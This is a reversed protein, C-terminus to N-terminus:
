NYIRYFLNADCQGTAAPTTVVSIAENEAAMPGDIDFFHGTPAGAAAHLTAKVTSGFKLELTIAQDSSSGSFGVIQFQKGKIASATATASAGSASSTTVPISAVNPM